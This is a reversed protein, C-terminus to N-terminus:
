FAIKVTNIGGDRENVLTFYDSAGNAIPIGNPAYPGTRYVLLPIFIEGAAQVRAVSPGAVVTLALIGVLVARLTM